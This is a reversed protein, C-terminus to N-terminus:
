AITKALASKDASSPGLILTHGIDSRTLTQLNLRFPIGITEDVLIIMNREM